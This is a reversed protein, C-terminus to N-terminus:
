AYRRSTPQGVELRALHERPVPDLGQESLAAHPLDVGRVVHQQAPPHRQLDHPRALIRVYPISALSRSPDEALRPGRGRQAVPVGYGDEVDPVDVAHGEDCHLEDGALREALVHAIALRREFAFEAPQDVDRLHQPARM